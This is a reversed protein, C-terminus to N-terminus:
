VEISEPSLWYIELFAFVTFVVIENQIIKLPFHIKQSIRPKAGLCENCVTHGTSATMNNKQNIKFCHKSLNKALFFLNNQFNVLHFNDLRLLYVRDRLEEYVGEAIESQLPNSLSNSLSCLCIIGWRKARSTPTLIHWALSYLEILPQWAVEEKFLTNKVLFTTHCGRISRYLQPQCKSTLM